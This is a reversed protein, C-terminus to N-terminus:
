KSIINNLAQLCLYIEAYIKVKKSINPLTRKYNVAIANRQTAASCVCATNSCQAMDCSKLHMKVQFTTISRHSAASTYDIYRCLLVIATYYSCVKVVM